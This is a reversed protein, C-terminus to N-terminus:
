ASRYRFAKYLAVIIQTFGVIAVVAVISQKVRKWFLPFDISWNVLSDIETAFNANWVTSDLLIVLTIITVLATLVSHIVAHSVTWKRYYLKLLAKLISMMFVTLIFFKYGQLVDTHFVPIVVTGNDGQVYAAILEPDSFIITIVITYVVTTVVITAIADAFSIIAKNHPIAPLKSLDWERKQTLHSAFRNKREIIFFAVTTWTFAQLVGSFVLSVYNEMVQGIQNGSIFLNEVLVALSIGVFVSAIVIKLVLIYTDYYNPGILYRKTGRYGDAINEPDGLKLLVQKVKEEFLEPGQQQEIMDMINARLEKEIEERQKGSFYKTVAYIYRNIYDM